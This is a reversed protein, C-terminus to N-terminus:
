RWRSRWRSRWRWRRRWRRRGPVGQRSAQRALVDGGDTIVDDPDVVAEDRAVAGDDLREAGARELRDAHQMGVALAHEDLVVTRLAILRAQLEDRGIRVPQAEALEIRRVDARAGDHDLEHQAPGRVAEILDGHVPRGRALALAVGQV